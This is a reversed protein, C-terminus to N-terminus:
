TFLESIIIISAYIKPKYNNIKLNKQYCYNLFKENKVVKYITNIILYNLIKFEKHHFLIDVFFKKEEDWFSLVFIVWKLVQEYYNKENIKQGFYHILGTVGHFFNIKTSIMGELSKELLTIRKYYKNYKGKLVLYCLGLSGDWIYPSLYKKNKVLIQNNHKEVRKDFIYDIIKQYYFNSSFDNYLKSKLLFWHGWFLLNSTTFNGLNTFKFFKEYKQLKEILYSPIEIDNIIKYLFDEKFNSFKLPKNSNCIKYIYEVKEVLDSFTSTSPKVFTKNLFEFNSRTGIYKSKKFVDCIDTILWLPFNYFLIFNYLSLLLWKIQFQNKLVLTEGILSEIFIYNLKLIDILFAPTKNPFKDNFLSIKSLIKETKSGLVYSTELDIFFCKINNCIFNKPNVDNLIINENHFNYICDFAKRFNDRYKKRDNSNFWNRRHFNISNLIFKLDKGNIFSKSLYFNNQFVFSDIYQHSYQFNKNSLQFLLKAENRRFFILQINKTTIAYLPSSKLIIYKKSHIDQAFFITSITNRHVFYLILFRNNLIVKEFNFLSNNRPFPENIFVPLFYEAQKRDLIKQNNPGILYPKHSYNSGYRYFVNTSDFFIRSSNINVGIFKKLANYLYMVYIKFKEESECYITIFKGFSFIDINISQNNLLLQENKIFKFNIENEFCYDFVIQLVNIAHKAISSIHIKWGYDPIKTSSFNASIFIKDENFIVNQKIFKIKDLYFIDRVKLFKM